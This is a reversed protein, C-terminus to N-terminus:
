IHILSLGQLATWSAAISAYRAEATEAIGLIMAEVAVPSLVDGAALSEALGAAGDAYESAFAKLLTSSSPSTVDFAEAEATTPLDVIAEREFIGDLVQTRVGAAYIAKARVAADVDTDPDAVSSVSVTVEGEDDAEASVTYDADDVKVTVPDFTWGSLVM